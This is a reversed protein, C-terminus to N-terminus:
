KNRGILWSMADTCALWPQKTAVGITLCLALVMAVVQEGCLAAFVFVFVSALSLPLLLPHNQASPQQTATRWRCLPIDRAPTEPIGPENPKVARPPRPHQRTDQLKIPTAKPQRIRLSINILLTPNPPRPQSLEPKLGHM